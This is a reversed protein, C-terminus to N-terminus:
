PKEDADQIKKHLKKFFIASLVSTILYYIAVMPLVDNIAILLNGRRILTFISYVTLYTMPNLVYILVFVKKLLRM